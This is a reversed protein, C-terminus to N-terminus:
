LQLIFPGIYSNDTKEYHILNTSAFLTLNSMVQINTVNNKPWEWTMQKQDLNKSM